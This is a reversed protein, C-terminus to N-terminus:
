CRSCSLDLEVSCERSRACRRTARSCIYLQVPFLFCFNDRAITLAGTRCIVLGNVHVCPETMQALTSYERPLPTGREVSSLSAWNSMGILQDSILHTGSICWNTTTNHMSRRPGHNVAWDVPPVPKRCFSRTGRSRCAWAASASSRLVQWAVRWELARRDHPM